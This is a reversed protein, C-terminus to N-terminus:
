HARLGRMSPLTQTQTADIGKWSLDDYDEIDAESDDVDDQPASEAARRASAIDIGINHLTVEVEEEEMMQGMARQGELVDYLAYIQDAKADIVAMLKQIRAYVIKRQHKSLSPDHQNYLTEQEQLQQRLQQLESELGRLVTALALGPPQAPRVTHEEDGPAAVPMRDSVPVPRTIVTTQKTGHTAHTSTSPIIPTLQPLTIDPVIYASTMEAQLGEGRARRQSRHSAISRQTDQREPSISRHTSEDEHMSEDDYSAHERVHGRAAADRHVDRTQDDVQYSVAKMSSKRPLRLDVNSKQTLNDNLTPQRTPEQDIGGCEALKARDEDVIQRLMAVENGDMFSLYTSDITLEANRAKPLEVNLDSTAEVVEPAFRAAHSAQRGRSISRQRQISRATENSASALRSTLRRGPATSAFADMAMSNADLDMTQQTAEALDMKTKVDKPESRTAALANRTEWLQKTLSSMEKVAKERRAVKGRLEAEQSTLRAIRSEYTRTSKNFEQQVDALDRQVATSENRLEESNLFANALQRHAADRDNTM